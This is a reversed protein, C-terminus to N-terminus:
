RSSCGKIAPDDSSWGFACSRGTLSWPRVSRGEPRIVGHAHTASEMSEPLAAMREAISGGSHACQM